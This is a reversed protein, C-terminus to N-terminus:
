AQGGDQGQPARPPADDDGSREVPLVLFFSSGVGLRSEVWVRGGHRREAVSKVIALGLGTGKIDLSDRRKVRFFREFLRVQDAQSIGLGTDQVQVVVHDEDLYVKATVEGRPTYKIANDVLNAVAQRLLTPDGMVVPLGDAVEMKLDLGKSLAQTRHSEIVGKVLGDMAVPQVLQDVDSEIRALSLLDEVLQTMQDIGSLIKGVYERQKASLEGIMPLMTVYGRM